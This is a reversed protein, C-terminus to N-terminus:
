PSHPDLPEPNDHPDEHAPPPAANNSESSLLLVAVGLTAVSSRVRFLALPNM